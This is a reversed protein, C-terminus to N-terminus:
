DDFLHGTPGYPCVRPKVVAGSWVIVWEGVCQVHQLVDKCLSGTFPYRMRWTYSKGGIWISTVSCLTSCFFARM